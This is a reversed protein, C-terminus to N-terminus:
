QEEKSKSKKRNRGNGILWYIGAVLMFAYGIVIDSVLDGWGDIATMYQPLETLARLLTTYGSIDENLIQYYTWGWTLYTAPTIVIVSFLLSIIVGFTSEEKAFMKYGTYAFCVALIGIWGSVYGMVGIVTWLLGGLLAGLLAGLIGLGKNSKDEIVPGSVHNEEQQPKEYLMSVGIVIFVIGVLLLIIGANAFHYVDNKQGIQVYYEGFFDAFSDEDVYGEGFNEEFGELVFQKLEEDIPQSYGVMRTEKPENDYSESYLWDIYPQYAQIEDTHLCVVTPNWDKDLAIYFQMNEMAEYYAVSETLYQVQTYVYQDTANAEYIDVPAEQELSSANSGLAITLIGVIMVLVGLVLLIIGPVRKRNRKKEEM